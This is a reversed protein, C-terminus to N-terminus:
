LIARVRPGNKLFNFSTSGSRTLLLTITRSTSSLTALSLILKLFMEGVSLTHSSIASVSSLM